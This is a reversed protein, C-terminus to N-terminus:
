SRPFSSGEHAPLSRSQPESQSSVSSHSEDGGLAAPERQCLASSCPAWSYLRLGMETRARFATGPWRNCDLVYPCLCPATPAGLLFCSLVLPTQAPRVSSTVDDFLPISNTLCCCPPFFPLASSASIPSAFARFHRCLTPVTGVM